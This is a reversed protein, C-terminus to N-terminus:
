IVLSLPKTKPKTVKTKILPPYEPALWWHSLTYYAKRHKEVGSPVTWPNLDICTRRTIEVFAMYSENNLLFLLTLKELHM